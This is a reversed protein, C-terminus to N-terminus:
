PACLSSVEKTVAKAVPDFVLVDGFRDGGMVVGFTGNELQAVGIVSAYPTLAPDAADCCARSADSMESNAELDCNYQMDMYIMRLDEASCPLDVRREYRALERTRTDFVVVGSLYSQVAAVRHDDLVTVAGGFIDAIYAIPKPDLASYALLGQAPGAYTDVLILIDNLLYAASIGAGAGIESDPNFLDFTEPEADGHEIIVELENFIAIYPQGAVTGTVTVNPFGGSEEDPLPSPAVPAPDRAASALRGASDVQWCQGATDASDAVCVRGGAFVSAEVDYSAVSARVAPDICSVHAAPDPDVHLTPDGEIPPNTAACAAACMGSFALILKRM